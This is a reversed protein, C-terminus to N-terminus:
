DRTAPQAPLRAQRRDVHHARVGRRVCVFRRRPLDRSRLRLGTGLVREGLYGAEYAEELAGALRRYPGDFEGRIYVFANRVQLAYSAILMSELLLHPAYELIWRDKFTGPEGEDANACLYHPQGDNPHVVGWKRGMPFAAGGRGQIGSATVEAIVQQSTMQRLVKELAGYGGRARYEDLTHSTATVPFTMLLKANAM